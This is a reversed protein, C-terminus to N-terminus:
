AVVGLQQEIWMRTEPHLIMKDRNALYWAKTDPKGVARGAGRWDALMERRDRDPMPDAAIQERAVVIPDAWSVFGPCRAVFQQAEGRDWVLVNTRKLPVGDASLWYQWHHRNRHQHLMWARAFGVSEKYQSSGNPAYFTCAYPLWEDPLFKDWDHLLLTLLPVGLKRGAQLVFWKHRLVYILYKWHRTM